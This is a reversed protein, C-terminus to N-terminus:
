NENEGELMEKAIQDIKCIPIAYEVGIACPFPYAEKRLREQMKRVTDAIPAVETTAIFWECLEDVNDCALEKGYFRTTADNRSCKSWHICKRCTAM